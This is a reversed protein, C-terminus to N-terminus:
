ELGMARIAANLPDTYVVPQLRNRVEDPVDAQASRKVVLAVARDGLRAEGMQGHRDVPRFLAGDSIQSMDSRASVATVPCTLAHRGFPIGKKAGEGEQDSKSRRLTVTLGREGFAPDAVDLSLIESRRFAGAFGLLLQAAMSADTVANKPRGQVFVM